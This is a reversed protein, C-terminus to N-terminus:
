KSIVYTTDTIKVKDILDRTREVQCYGFCCFAGVRLLPPKEM